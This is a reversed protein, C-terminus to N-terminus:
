SSKKLLLVSLSVNTAAAMEEKSPKENFVDRDDDKVDLPGRRSFIYFRSLSFLTTSVIICLVTITKFICQTM